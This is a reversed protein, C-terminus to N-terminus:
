SSVRFGSSEREFATAGADANRDLLGPRRKLEIKARVLGVDLIEEAPEDVPIPGLKM